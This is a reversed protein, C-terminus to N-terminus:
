HFFEKLCAINFLFNLEIQVDIITKKYTNIAMYGM